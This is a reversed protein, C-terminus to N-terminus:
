DEEFLHRTLDRARADQTKDASDYLSEPDMVEALEFVPPVGASVRKFRLCKPFTGMRRFLEALLLAAAQALAPLNVIINDNQWQEPLLDAADALDQIQPGFEANPDLQCDLNVVHIDDPDYDPFADRLQRLQSPTIPHSYNLVIM